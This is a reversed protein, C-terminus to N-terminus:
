QQRYRYRIKDPAHEDIGYDNNHNKSRDKMGDSKFQAYVGYEDSYQHCHLSGYTGYSGRKSAIDEGSHGNEFTWIKFDDLSNHRKQNEINHCCQENDKEGRQRKQQPIHSKTLYTRQSLRVKLNSASILAPHEFALVSM